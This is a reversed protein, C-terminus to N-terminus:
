LHDTRVLKAAHCFIRKCQFVPIHDHPSAIKHRAEALSECDGHGALAFCKQLGSGEGSALIFVLLSASSMMMLQKPPPYIVSIELWSSWPLCSPCGDLPLGGSVANEDHHGMMSTYAVIQPAPQPCEM